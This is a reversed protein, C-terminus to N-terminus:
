SYATASSVGYYYSSSSTTLAIQCCAADDDSMFPEITNALNQHPSYM